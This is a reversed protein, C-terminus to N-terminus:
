KVSVWCKQVSELKWGRSFWTNKKLVSVPQHNPVHIKNEMIYIQIYDKENITKVM